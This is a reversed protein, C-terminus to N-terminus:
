NKLKNIVKLVNDIAEEITEAETEAGAALEHGGGNLAEALNKVKQYGKTSRFSVGWLNDEKRAKVIFGWHVGQIYRLVNDRFFRYAENRSTVDDNDEGNLYTYAMDNEIQLNEILKVILPLSGAPFKQSNYSFNEIDVEFIERLEAFIRFTEPTTSQYMFRSTDSIIGYQAIEAMEKTINLKGGFIRKITIYVQEAAASRGENITIDPVTELGEPHHDIVMIPTNTDKLPDSNDVCVSLNPIDVVVILDEEGEELKEVVEIDKMTPINFNPMQKAKIKVVKNPYIQKIAEKLLLMSCFADPDPGLHSIILISNAEKIYKKLLKHKEDMINKIFTILSLIICIHTLSYYLM